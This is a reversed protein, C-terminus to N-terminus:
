LFFFIEDIRWLTGGRSYLYVEGLCVGLILDFLIKLVVM